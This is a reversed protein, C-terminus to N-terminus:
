AGPQKSLRNDTENKKKTKRKPKELLKMAEELKILNTQHTAM